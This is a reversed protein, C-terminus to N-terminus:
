KQAFRARGATIAAHSEFNMFFQKAAADNNLWADLFATTAGAFIKMGEEDHAGGKNDSGGRDERCILGGLYHDGEELVVSYKDGPPTLGFASMRWEWPYITPGGINGLDLTGGTVLVPGPVEGFSGEAMQPMEGVGSM